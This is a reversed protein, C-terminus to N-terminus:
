FPGKTFAFFPVDSKWSVLKLWGLNLYFRPYSFHNEYFHTNSLNLESHLPHHTWPSLPHLCPAPTQEAPSLSIGLHLLAMAYCTPHPCHFLSNKLM